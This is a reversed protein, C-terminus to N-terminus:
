PFLPFMSLGHMDWYSDACKEKHTLLFFKGYMKYRVYVVGLCTVSFCKHDCCRAKGMELKLKPLCSCM